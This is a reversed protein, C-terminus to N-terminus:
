LSWFSSSFWCFISLSNKRSRPIKGDTFSKVALGILLASALASLSSIAAMIMASRKSKRLMNRKRGKGIMKM